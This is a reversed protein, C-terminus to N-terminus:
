DELGGTNQGAPCTITTQALLQQIYMSYMTGAVCSDGTEEVLFPSGFPGRIKDLGAPNKIVEVQDLVLASRRKGKSGPDM